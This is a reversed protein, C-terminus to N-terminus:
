IPFETKYRYQIRVTIFYIFLIISYDAIRYVPLHQSHLFRGAPFIDAICSPHIQAAIKWRIIVSPLPDALLRCAFIFRFSEDTQKLFIGASAKKRKAILCFFNDAETLGPRKGHILSAVPQRSVELLPRGAKMHLFIVQFLVAM